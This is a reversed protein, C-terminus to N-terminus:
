YELILYITKQVENRFTIWIKSEYKRSKPLTKEERQGMKTGQPKKERTGQSFLNGRSRFISLPPFYGGESCFFSDFLSCKDEIVIVAGRPHNCQQLVFGGMDEILM